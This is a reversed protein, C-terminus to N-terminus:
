RPGLDCFSSAMAGMGSANTSTCSSGGCLGDSLPSRVLQSQAPSEIISLFKMDCVIRDGDSFSVEVDGDAPDIRKVFGTRGCYISDSGDWLSDGHCDEVDLVSVKSGVEVMSAAPDETLSFEPLEKVSSARRHHSVKVIPSVTVPPSHKNSQTVTAVGSGAACNGRKLYKVGVSVAGLVCLGGLVFNRRSLDTPM